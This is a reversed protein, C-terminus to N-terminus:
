NRVLRYRYTPHRRDGVYIREREVEGNNYMKKIYVQVTDNSQGMSKAMEALTAWENEQLYKRIETQGM